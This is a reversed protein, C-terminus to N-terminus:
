FGGGVAKGIASGNMVYVRDSKAGWRGLSLCYDSRNRARITFPFEKVVDARGSKLLKWAQRSTLYVTRGEVEFAV